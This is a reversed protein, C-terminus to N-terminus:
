LVLYAERAGFESLMKRRCLHVRRIEPIPDPARCLSNIIMEGTDPWFRDEAFHRAHGRRARPSSCRIPATVFITQCRLPQLSFSNQHIDARCCLRCLRDRLITGEM